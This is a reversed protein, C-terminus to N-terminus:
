EDAAESLPRVSHFVGLERMREFDKQVDFTKYFEAYKNKRWDYVFYKVMAAGVVSLAAGIVFHKKLHSNLLGRMQPRPLAAM